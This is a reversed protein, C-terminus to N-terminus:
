LGFREKMFKTRFVLISAFNIIAVLGLIIALRIWNEGNEIRVRVYYITTRIWEFGFIILLVQIIRASIKNKWFLFFPIALSVYQLVFMNARGLHAAMLLSCLIIPLIKMSNKM